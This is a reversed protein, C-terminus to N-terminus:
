EWQFLRWHKKQEKRGMYKKYFIGFGVSRREPKEGVRFIWTPMFYKTIVAEIHTILSYNLIFKVKVPRFENEQLGHPIVTYYTFFYSLHVAVSFWERLSVKVRRLRFCFLNQRLLCGQVFVHKMYFFVLLLTYDPQFVWPRLWSNKCSRICYFAAFFFSSKKFNPM